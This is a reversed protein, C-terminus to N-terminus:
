PITWDRSHSFFNPTAGAGSWQSYIRVFKSSDTTITLVSPSLAVKGNGWDATACGLSPGAISGIPGRTERPTYYTVSGWVTQTVSSPGVCGGHWQQFYYAYEEGDRVFEGTWDDTWSIFEWQGTYTWHGWNATSVDFAARVPTASAMTLVVTVVVTLVARLGSRMHMGGKRRGNITASTYHSSLLETNCVMPKVM